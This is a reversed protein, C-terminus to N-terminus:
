PCAPPRRLIPRPGNSCATSYGKLGQLGAVNYGATRGNRLDSLSEPLLGMIAGAEGASQGRKIVTDDIKSVLKAKQLLVEADPLGLDAFVNGSGVTGIATQKADLGGGLEVEIDPHSDAIKRIRALTSEPFSEPMAVIEAAM